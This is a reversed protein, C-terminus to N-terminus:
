RVRVVSFDANSVLTKHPLQNLYALQSKYREADASTRHIQEDVYLVGALGKDMGIENMVTANLEDFSFVDVSPIAYMQPILPELTLIYEESRFLM